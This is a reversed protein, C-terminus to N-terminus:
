YEIRAPFAMGAIFGAAYACQCACWIGNGTCLAKLTRLPLRVARLWVPAHPNFAGHGPPTEIVWQPYYRNVYAAQRGNRYFQRILKPLTDPPLHAYTVGPILVVRKGAARVQQRLYPDLGRPILENEGGIDKFDSTRMMLCPHQALDSDTIREVPKWARRPIQRMARKIFASATCPIVANGGAIGIDPNNEMADVLKGIAGTDCLSTDDDLTLLYTGAALSAAVNIARGQRPDGKVVIVEFRRMDQDRLQELLRKFMGGRGADSTPIIVTVVPGGADNCPIQRYCGPSPKANRIRVFSRDIASADHWAAHAIDWGM